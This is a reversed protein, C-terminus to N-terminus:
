FPLCDDDLECFSRIEVEEGKSIERVEYTELNLTLRAYNLGSLGEELEDVAVSEYVYAATGCPDYDRDTEVCFLEGIRKNLDAVVEQSINSFANFARYGDYSLNNVTSNMIFNQGVGAVGLADTLQTAERLGFSGVEFVLVSM